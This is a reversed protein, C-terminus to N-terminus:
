LKMPKLPVIRQAKSTKKKKAAHSAGSAVEKAAHAKRERELDAGRQRELATARLAAARQAASRPDAADILKGDPCPTQSYASGCRYIPGSGAAHVIGGALAFILVIRKM